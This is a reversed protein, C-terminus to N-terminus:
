ETFRVSAAVSEQSALAALRETLASRIADYSDEGLVLRLPPDSQRTTAYVLEAIKRPDGTLLTGADADRMDRRLQGVATSEYPPTPEVFRMGSLFSTRTAGIEVLTLHIGFDAVEQAVSETFGELGWKGAHYGSHMPVATQGGLSSIQIIRGGGQERMPKLFGRTILIPAILLVEIQDRIQEPSMEEAAGVLAYGANNVVVDVPRAALVRSIVTDVDAPPSLDLVDVTLRDGYRRRLDDLGDARRATATVSDGQQLAYETINRGLGGTAGTVFWHRPSDDRDQTM